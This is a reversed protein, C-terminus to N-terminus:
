FNMWNNKYRSWHHSRRQPSLFLKLLQHLFGRRYEELGNNAGLCQSQQSSLLPLQRSPLRRLRLGEYIPFLRCPCIMRGTKPLPRELEIEGTWNYPVQVNFEGKADTVATGGGNNATVKVGEIGTGGVTVTDTITFMQVIASFHQNSQERTVPVVYRKNTPRFNHGQLTPTVTGRWGYNVTIEYEGNANTTASGGEDHEDRALVFVGEVPEGKDTKITGSITRKELIAIYDRNAENGYLAPYTIEEPEFTYGAKEPKITGNWGYKVEASYTGDPNSMIPRGLLGSLKVGGIGASGSITLIIEKATYNTKQDNTIAAYTTEAPTFEYGEKIPIVINSFGWDVTASYSGGPGTVPNGPLGQMTAGDVGASGSITLMIPSPTYNQNTKETMLKTYNMTAPEFKFGAKIPKVSGSWGWNVTASYYGNGDTFVAPGPLGTM